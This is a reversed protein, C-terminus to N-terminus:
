WCSLFININLVKFGYVKDLLQAIKIPAETDSRLLSCCLVVYLTQEATAFAVYRSGCEAPLTLTCIPSFSALFDLPHLRLLRAYFM